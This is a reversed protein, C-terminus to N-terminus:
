ICFKIPHCELSWLIVTIVFNNSVSKSSLLLENRFCAWIIYLLKKLDFISLKQYKEKKQEFCLNHTCM